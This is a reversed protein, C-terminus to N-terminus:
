SLNKVGTEPAATPNTEDKFLSNTKGGTKGTRSGLAWDLQAPVLASALKYVTICLATVVFPAVATFLPVPATPLVKQFVLWFIRMLPAHTVFIFFSYISLRALWHGLPTDVLRSAASWLLLPAMLRLWTIQDIEFASVIACAACFVLLSFWAFRDLAKPNWRYVAALGGAYFEVAMDSRNLLYGDSNTLFLISVGVLGTVPASRILLGFAPALVVLVILDRLFHLPENEPPKRLSFLSNMWGDIGQAFLDEGLWRGTALRLMLQLALHGLNFVMFPVLLSRTKDKLLKVYKLDSGASFLLFGSIMTLVPVGGKFVGNQLFSVFYAWSTGDMEYVKLTPPTHAIVVGFIMLFRLM